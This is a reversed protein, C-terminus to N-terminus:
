QLLASDTINSGDFFSANFFLSQSDKWAAWIHNWAGVKVPHTQMILRTRATMTLSMCVHWIDGRDSDCFSPKLEFLLTDIYCWTMDPQSCSCTEMLASLPFLMNEGSTAHERWTFLEKEKENSTIVPSVEYVAPPVSFPFHWNSFFPPFFVCKVM